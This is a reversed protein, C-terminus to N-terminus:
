ITMRGAGALHVWDHRTARIPKVTGRGLSQLRQWDPLLQPIPTTSPLRFQSPFTPFEPLELQGSQEPIWRCRESIVPPRRAKPLQNGRMAQWARHAADFRSGLHLGLAGICDGLQERMPTLVWWEELRERWESLWEGPTPPLSHYPM